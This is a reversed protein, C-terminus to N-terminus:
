SSKKRPKGSHQAVHKESSVRPCAAAVINGLTTGSMLLIEYGTLVLAERADTLLSEFM